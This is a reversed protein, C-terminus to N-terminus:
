DSMRDYCSECATGHSTTMPYRSAHGCDCRIAAPQAAVPVTKRADADRIEAYWDTDYPLIKGATLADMVGATTMQPRNQRRAFYADREVALNVFEEIRDENAWTGNSLKRQFKM